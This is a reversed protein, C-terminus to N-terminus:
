AGPSLDSLCPVEKFHLRSHLAAVTSAPMEAFRGPRRALVFAAGSAVWLQLSRQPLMRIRGDTLRRLRLRDDFKLHVIYIGDSLAVILGVM